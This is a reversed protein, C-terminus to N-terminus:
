SRRRGHPDGSIYYDHRESADAPGADIPNQGWKWIPDTKATAVDVPEDGSSELTSVGGDAGEDRRPGPNLRIVLQDGPRALVEIEEAGDLLERPILAGEPNVKITM